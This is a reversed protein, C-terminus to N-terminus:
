NYMVTSHYYLSLINITSVQTESGAVINVGPRMHLANKLIPALNLLKAKPNKTDCSRLLDTRGILDQFKKIGLQAM